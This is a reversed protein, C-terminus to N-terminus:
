WINSRNRIKPQTVGSVDLGIEAATSTLWFKMADLNVTITLGGESMSSYFPILNAFEKCVATKATVIDAEEDPNPILGSQNALLLTIDDASLSFKKAILNIYEAYSM